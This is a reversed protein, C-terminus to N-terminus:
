AAVTREKCFGKSDFEQCGQLSSDSLVLLDVVVVLELLVEVTELELEVVLELFHELVLDGVLELELVVLLM